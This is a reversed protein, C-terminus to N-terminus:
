QLEQNETNESEVNKILHQISITESYLNQCFLKFDEKNFFIRKEKLKQKAIFIADNFNSRYLEPELTRALSTIILTNIIKDTCKM